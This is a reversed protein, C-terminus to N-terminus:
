LVQRRSDKINKFVVEKNGTGREKSKATTSVSPSAVKNKNM